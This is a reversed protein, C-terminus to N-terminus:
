ELVDRKRQILIQSSPWKLGCFGVFKITLQHELKFDAILAELYELHYTNVSHLPILKLRQGRRQSNFFFNYTKDYPDNAIEIWYHTRSIRKFLCDIRELIIKLDSNM